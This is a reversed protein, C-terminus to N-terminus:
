FQMLEFFQELKSKIDDAAVNNKSHVTYKFRRYDVVKDLCADILWNVCFRGEGNGDGLDNDFSIRDPIGNALIFDQFAGQNRVIVWPGPGINMWTIQDPNREDDLFLSVMTKEKV